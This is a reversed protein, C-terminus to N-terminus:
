DSRGTREEVRGNINVQLSTEVCLAIRLPDVHELGGCSREVARVIKNVDAPELSGNRKRVQM